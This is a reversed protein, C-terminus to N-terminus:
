IVAKQIDDITDMVMDADIEYARLIRSVTIYNVVDQEKMANLVAIRRNVERTLDEYTWGRQEMIASYVVSRGSYSFIDTVPDYEFVTNV